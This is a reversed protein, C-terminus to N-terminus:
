LITTFLSSTDFFKRGLNKIFNFSAENLVPVTNHDIQVV